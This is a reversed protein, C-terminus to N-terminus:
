HKNLIIYYKYYKFYKRINKKGLFIIINGNGNLKLDNNSAIGITEPCIRRVDKSINSSANIPKETVTDRILRWREYMKQQPNILKRAQQNIGIQRTVCAAASPHAVRKRGIEEKQEKENEHFASLEKSPEIEKSREPVQYEKYCLYIYEEISNKM